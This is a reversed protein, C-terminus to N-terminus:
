PAKKALRELYYLVKFADDALYYPRVHLLTEEIVHKASEITQLRKKRKAMTKM